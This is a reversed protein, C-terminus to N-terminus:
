GALSSRLMQDITMMRERAADVLPNPEIATDYRFTSLQGATLPLAGAGILRELWWLGAMLVGVPLHVARGADGRVIERIMRMLNEMTIVEPGGLDFEGTGFRADETAEAILEALDDVHIPQVRSRGDGFVPMVPACALTRLSDLNPSGAGFVLTPRVITFPEGSERILAEADAKARAYPYRSLDPCKAVITSAFVFRRVGAERCAALLTETLQLNDRRHLEAPAKGTRAALHLVTDSSKLAERWGEPEALDGRLWHVAPGAKSDPMARCLAVVEHGRGCLRELVRAGVFGTGGTVFIRAM